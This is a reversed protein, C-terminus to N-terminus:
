RDLHDLGGRLLAGHLTLVAESLSAAADAARASSSADRRSSLTSVASEILGLERDAATRFARLHRPEIGSEALVLASEVVRVAHERYRGGEDPGVLGYEELRDLFADSVSTRGLLEARTLPRLHGALEAAEADDLGRPTLSAGGPLHPPREGRDIADVYDKIVRLPLYQDRQLALIFRLRELDTESYKRYGAATRAPTVLGKEELFRIKSATIGSFDEALRTLVEGINM